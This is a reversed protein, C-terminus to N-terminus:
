GWMNHGMSIYMLLGLFFVSVVLRKKLKDTEIDESKGELEAISALTLMQHVTLKTNEIEEKYQTLYKDM